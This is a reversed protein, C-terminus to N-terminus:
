RTQKVGSGTKWTKSELVQKSLYKSELVQKERQNSELVRKKRYKSELVQKERKKQSQFRNETWSLLDCIVLIVSIQYFPWFRDKEM